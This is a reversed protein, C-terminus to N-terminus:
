RGRPRSRRSSRRRGWNCASTSPSRWWSSPCCPSAFCSHTYGGGGPCGSPPLFFIPSGVGGGGGGPRWPPPLKAAVRYLLRPTRGLRARRCVHHCRRIRRRPVPRPDDAVR